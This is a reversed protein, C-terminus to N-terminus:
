LPQPKSTNRIEKLFYSGIIFVLTIEFALSLVALGNWVRPDANFLRQYVIVLSIGYSILNIIGLTLISSYNAIFVQIYFALSAIALCALTTFIYSTETLNYVAFIAAVSQVLFVLLNFCFIFWKHRIFANVLNAYTIVFVKLLVLLSCVVFFYSYLEYGVIKRSYIIYGVAIVTLLIFNLVSPIFINKPSVRQIFESFKEDILKKM